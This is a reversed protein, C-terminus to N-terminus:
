LLFTRFENAKWYEIDNLSRPLRVFESPFYQRLSILEKDADYIKENPIRVSQKGRVWFKLMRKMTGLCVAHMYDIPVAKIMDIPLRELPTNGKHYEDDNKTRFGTLVCHLM